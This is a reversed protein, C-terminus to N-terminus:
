LDSDSFQAGCASCFLISGGGSIKEYNIFNQPHNCNNTLKTPNIVKYKSIDITRQPEDEFDKIPTGGDVLSSVKSSFSPTNSVLDKRDAAGGRSSLKQPTETETITEIEPEAVQSTSSVTDSKTFDEGGIQPISQVIYGLSSERHEKRQLGGEETLFSDYLIAGQLLERKSYVAKSSDEHIILSVVPDNVESAVQLTLGLPNLVMRNIVFLLGKEYLFDTAKFNTLEQDTM